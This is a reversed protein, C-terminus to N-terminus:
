WDSIRTFTSAPRGLWEVVRMVHPFGIRGGKALRTLSPANCGGIENAVQQWTLGRKIRRENLAAHMAKTNFRLIQHPGVKPLTPEAKAAEQHGPMFSEPTRDLWLLMQLVGDGEVSGRERMGTLTSPSIPRCPVDKFLDNIERTAQGWSLGRARRQADLADYLAGVDFDTKEFTM